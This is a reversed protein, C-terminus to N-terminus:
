SPRLLLTPLTTTRPPARSVSGRRSRRATSRFTSRPVSSCRAASRRTPRYFCTLMCPESFCMRIICNLGYRLMLGSLLYIIDVADLIDLQNPINHMMYNSPNVRPSVVSRASRSLSPLASLALRRRARGRRSSLRLSSFRTVPPSPGIRPLLNTRLGCVATHFLAGHALVTAQAVNEAKASEFNIQDTLTKDRPMRLRTLDIRWEPRWSEDSLVKFSLSGLLFTAGLRM